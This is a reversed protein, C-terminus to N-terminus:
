KRFSALTSKFNETYKEINLFNSKHVYKKIYWLAIM